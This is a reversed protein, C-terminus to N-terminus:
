QCVWLYGGAACVGVFIAIGYPVCLDGQGKVDTELTETDPECRYGSSLSLMLGMFAVFTSAATSRLKRAVLTRVLALAMGAVGVALLVVFGQRLGLWAGIAAMLKADGAGGGAYLFLVIFPLALLVAAGLAEGTGALGRMWGAWILGGVLLPLSLVNPIRRTKIDILAACLSAGIAVGWEVFGSDIDM